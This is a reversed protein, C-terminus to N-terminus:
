SASRQEIETAPLDMQGIPILLDTRMLENKKTRERGRLDLEVNVISRNTHLVHTIAGTRNRLKPEKHTDKVRVRTGKTFLPSPDAM